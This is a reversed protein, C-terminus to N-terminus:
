KEMQSVAQCLQITSTSAGRHVNQYTYITHDYQKVSSESSQQASELINVNNSKMTQSKM